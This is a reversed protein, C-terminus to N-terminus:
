FSGKIGITPLIPLGRLPASQQFRYDYLTMEPNEANYVNQVDLYASLRWLKFFWTKEIRIDLQHFLPLRDSLREGIVRRFRNVDSDFVGGLVPTDPRGSVLRFRAGLEWTGGLRFSGVLTLIHTQDFTFPLYPGGPELQQVSRALTYALWGYFHRTVDHKVILELGYSYANGQNSFRLPRLSGDPQIRIERTPIVESYRHILYLQADVSLQPLRPVFRHEVGLSVHVAHKPQLRGNGFTDNVQNPDPARSFLGAAGKLVTGTRLTYRATLRPDLSLRVNDVYRYIEFRAGPILQLRDTVNLLADLYLGIGFQFMHVNVPHVDESLPLVNGSGTSEGGGPNRYDLPIPVMTDFTDREFLSDTGFRLLARRSLRLELDERLEATLVTLDITSEGLKVKIKDIGLTPTLRSLLRPTAQWRWGALLRHFTVHTDLNINVKDKPENTAVGLQDDSGFGLVFLQDDGPLDVDVRLQYDYYIPVVTTARRDTLKLLSPLIADIYSRRAAAAVSVRKAVPVRLFVSTNLLNIDLAGGWQKSFTSRTAVDVVGAVLRGFRVDANGPYYDIRDIFEPNLISPGGLFHYLLPILTGDLFVGSDGPAAGRILLAGGLYPVRAVGPLSEVVRLPDGFTGPVTTLEKQRLTVRSVVTKRRQGRIVTEYPNATTRRLFFEVRTQEGARVEALADERGHELSVAEVRYKGPPVAKFAFAGRGDARVELGLSRIAVAVGPLPLRTGEERVRGVLPDAGAPAAARDAMWAPLRPTFSRELVFNYAYRLRVPAPKGDVEAPSFRFGRAAESAARALAPDPASLVSAKRVTGDAGLELELEVTGAVGRRQAEAPYRAPVFKVLAPPRTLKPEHRKVEERIQDQARAPRAGALAVAAVLCILAVGRPSM